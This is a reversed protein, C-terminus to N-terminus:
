ATPEQQDIIEPHGFYDTAAKLAAAATPQTDFVPSPEVAYGATRMADAYATASQEDHFTQGFAPGTSPTCIVEWLAVSNPEAHDAHAPDVYPRGHAYIVARGANEADRGARAAAAQQQQAQLDHLLDAMRFLEARAAERGTDTGNELAAAIIRAAQPWTPTMDITRTM